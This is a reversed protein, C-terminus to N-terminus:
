RRISRFGRRVKQNVQIREEGESQVQIREEGESQGSDEGCRRISGSDEGRRRISRFGRRVKQNVQTREEGESQGLGRRM